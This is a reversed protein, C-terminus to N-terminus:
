DPRLVEIPDVAAARRAPILAALAAVAALVLAGAVFSPVDLPSIGHVLGALGRVLAVAGACGIVIGVVVPLLGQGVILRRIAAPRAGFAIRIGMERLRLRANYAVTGYIGAAAIVFALAGFAALVQAYFREEAVSQAVLTELPYIETVAQRGDIEAALRRITPVLALPDGDARLVYRMFPRPDQREPVYLLPRDEEFLRTTKVNEVVGIIRRPVWKDTAYDWVGLVSGVAGGPGRHDADFFRQVFAENVLVLPEGGDGDAAALSRGARLEIAMAELYDETIWRADVDPAQDPDLVDGIRVALRNRWASFPMHTTGGVSIVGPLNRVGDLLEHHYGPIPQGDVTNAPPAFFTLVDRRDFGPDSRWVMTFSRLMVTAGILLVLTLAVETAVLALRLRRRATGGAVTRAAGGMSRTLSRLDIGLAPVLGALTGAILAIALTMLVVRGDVAVRDALPLERPAIRLVVGALSRALLLGLVGGALGLLAAECLALRVLSARGAGLAARIALEGRTASAKALVLSAVNVCAILVLLAVAGQLLWLRSRMGGVVEESLPIVEVGVGALDGSPAPTADRVGRLIARAQAPEVEPRLRAIVRLAPYDFWGEDNWDRTSLPRWVDPQATEREGMSRVFMYPDFFWFGEPMVGVITVPDNDVTVAKGVIAPDAAFTSRWLRDSIV